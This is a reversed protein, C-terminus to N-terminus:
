YTGFTQKIQIQIAEDSFNNEFLKKCCNSLNQYNENEMSMLNKIKLINKEKTENINIFIGVGNQTIENEIATSQNSFGIIPKYFSLYTSFKGPLIFKQRGIADIPLLFFIQIKM